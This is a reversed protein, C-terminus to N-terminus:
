VLFLLGKSSSNQTAGHTETHRCIIGCAHQFLIYVRQVVINPPEMLKPINVVLVVHKFPSDRWILNAQFHYSENPRPLSM